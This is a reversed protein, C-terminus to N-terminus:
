FIDQQERRDQITESSFDATLRIPSGRLTIQRKERAGKLIKERHKVTTLKIVVHQPSSRKQDHKNPTRYAEQVLIGRDKEM